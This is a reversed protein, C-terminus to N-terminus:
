IYGNDITPLQPYNYCHKASIYVTIPPFKPCHTLLYYTTEVKYITM